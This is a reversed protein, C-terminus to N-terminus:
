GLMRREGAFPKSKPNDLCNPKTQNESKIAIWCRAGTRLAAASESLGGGGVPHGGGPVISRGGAERTSM